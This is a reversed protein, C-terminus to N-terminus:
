CIQEESARQCEMCRMADPYVQLRREEIPAGCDICIGYSGKEIMELAKVIRSYEKQQQKQLSIALEEISASAAQDLPDAAGSDPNHQKSLAILEEEIDRKRQLLKQKVANTVKLM